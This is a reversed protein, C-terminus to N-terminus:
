EENTFHFVYVLGKPEYGLIGLGHEAAYRFGQSKWLFTATFEADYIRKPKSQEIMKMKPM